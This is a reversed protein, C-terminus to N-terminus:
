NNLIVQPSKTATDAQWFHFWSRIDGVHSVFPDIWCAFAGELTLLIHSSFPSHKYVYLHIPLAHKSRQEQGFKRGSCNNCMPLLTFARGAKLSSHTSFLCGQASYVGRHLQIPHLPHHLPHRHLGLRWQDSCGPHGSSVEGGQHRHDLTHNVLQRPFQDQAKVSWNRWYTLFLCCFVFSRYGGIDWKQYVLRRRLRRLRAFLLKM